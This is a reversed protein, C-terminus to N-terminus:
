VCPFPTVTKDEICKLLHLRMKSQDYNRSMSREALCICSAIAFLGCDEAGVQKRDNNVVVEVKSGFLQKWIGTTNSDASDFSSDYITVKPHSLITSVVIWHNTRCHMIQLFNKTCKVPVKSSKHVTLTSKLGYVDKYKNGVLKQIFNVHKDTLQEGLLM